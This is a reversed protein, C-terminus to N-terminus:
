PAETAVLERLVPLSVSGNRDPGVSSIYLTQVADNGFVRSIAADSVSRGARAASLSSSSSLGEVIVFVHEDVRLGAGVLM